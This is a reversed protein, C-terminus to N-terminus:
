VVNAGDRLIEGIMEWVGVFTECDLQIQGARSAYADLDANPQAMMKSISLTVESHPFDADERQAFREVNIMGLDKDFEIRWLAGNWQKVM